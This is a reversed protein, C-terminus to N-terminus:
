VGTLRLAAVVGRSWENTLCGNWTHRNDAQSVLGRESDARRNGSMLVELTPRGDDAAVRM